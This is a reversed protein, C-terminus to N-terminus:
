PRICSGLRVQCKWSRARCAEVRAPDGVANKAAQAVTSTQAAVPGSNPKESVQCSTILVPVVMTVNRMTNRSWFVCFRSARARCRLSSSSSLLRLGARLRRMSRSLQVSSSISWSSRCNRAKRARSSRLRALPPALRVQPASPAATGLHFSGFAFPLGLLWSQGGVAGRREGADLDLAVIHLDLVLLAKEAVPRALAREAIDKFIHALGQASCALV